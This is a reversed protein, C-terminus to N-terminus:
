SRNPPPAAAHRIQDDASSAAIGLRARARPDDHWGTALAALAVLLEPSKAALKERGFLTRGGATMQLLTELAAPAATHGLCRVALARLDGPLSRDTARHMLLPVASDPFAQLAVALSLALRLTRPDQDRLGAVLAEDRGGPLKLQLKVAQWRVRADAHQMYPAASFGPPPPGLEELLALLNRTVYWRSDDLRAIAVPAIEAGMKALQALLGRRAGRSEALALADLLPPAAATGVLPVLRELLKFDIPERAVIHRVAGATAVQARVTAAAATDAVGGELADLLQALRGETVVRDVAAHLRPGMTGMELAMAVLRDPETTHHDTRPPASPAARAMRQLAEGYAGPNPDPLTWGALLRQVQERLAADAQPRVPAAGAEAHVALKSLLRVLSHSIEEHSSEAAAKLIELVADVAMGEAADSVFQRRQAFDGGMRVLRQLTEPKLTRILRSTRRRLAAAEASGATKLEAAIQLLYGVIVQDYGTAEAKSHQDIAQAIVAPETPTPRTDDPATALAARALGLWLQAARADGEGVPGAQDTLELREYTLAHLQVHPWAALRSRDGLGLPQGTREAEIALTRLADAVEGEQVGRRFTIAGLHHRHLRGALERLVPHKPDTAVGEIVLQNRAVGLSITARDELLLAARRTLGAAAPALSPHGEPYMAHKHLAISLEILFDALDRSLTAREPAGSGPSSSPVTWFLLFAGSTQEPAGRSM